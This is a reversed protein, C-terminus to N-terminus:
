YIPPKFGPAREASALQRSVSAPPLAPLTAPAFSPLAPALAVSHCIQCASCNGCDQGHAEDHHAATPSQAPGHSHEHCDTTTPPAVEVQPSASAHAVPAMAMADGVWSRLPLLAIMFALLLIRMTQHPVWQFTPAMNFSLCDRPFNLEHLIM